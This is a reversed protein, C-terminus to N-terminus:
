RSGRQLLVTKITKLFIILDLSLSMNKIYYLDYRLKEKSEELSAGYVYKVQAWGTVGPRVIHRLNYYPIERSLVAVFEPREPRPGVFAMDGRLVNWLQPIEDLRSSRLLRGVLTIRPDNDGAWTPGTDAEADPRMTRFKYCYFSVGNRGVRKQRYLVPGPSTLRIVLTILPVLPLVVLLCSLALTFSVLRRALLSSSGLRFGDSFILWSPSLEDVEIKGFIKEQLATGDEVKIGALRLDLLERVPLIGRRDGMAVIVRDVEGRDKLTLLTEGVGERTVPGNELAGAWGTIDLGLETRSRLAEVLLRTREGSGLVYVRERLYPQRLLWEFALRWGWLTLILIVLGVLYVSKGLLLAPFVSGIAALVLSLAGVAALLRSFIEPHSRLQQLDYLDLYYGCV